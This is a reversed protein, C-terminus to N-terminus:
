PVPKTVPASAAPAAVRSIELAVNRVGQTQGVVAALFGETRHLVDPPLDPNAIRGRLTVEGRSATVELGLDISVPVLALVLRVRSVLALDQIKERTEETIAFEPMRASEVIAARAGDVNLKELNIVMDYLSPDHWDVGFIFKIWRTWEEDVRGIYEAAEERSVKEKEVVAAIRMEQPAIIRVRLISPIEKLLLHGALGHYVLEGSAAYGALAAQMASIYTGKNWALRDWLGLAEAPDDAGCGHASTLHLAEGTLAERGICPCGLVQAISEAVARGGWLSGRAITIIPM